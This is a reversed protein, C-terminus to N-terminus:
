REMCYTQIEKTLENFYKGQYHHLINKLQEAWLMNIEKDKLPYEKTTCIQTRAFIIIKKYIKTYSNEEAFYREIYVPSIGVCYADEMLEIDKQPYRESLEDQYTTKFEELSNALPTENYKTEYM